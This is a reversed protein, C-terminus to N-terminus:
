QVFKLIKKKKEKKNKRDHYICTLVMIFIGSGTILFGQYFGQPRFRFAVTHEGKELEVSVFADEAALVKEKPVKKGDVTVEWGPDYPISTFFLGDKKATVTGEIYTSNHETINYGEDAMEEYYAHFVENDFTAGTISITGANIGDNKLKLSVMVKTGKKVEGVHIIQSNLKENCRIVGDNQILISEIQNGTIYLFLEENKKPNIEFVVNDELSATNTFSYYGGGSSTLDCSNTKIPDAISIKHFLEGPHEMSAEVINNQVVFPNNLRYVVDEMDKKVMFGLPLATINEYIDINGVAEKHIFNDQFISDGPRAILYKVGLLADTLPTAGKYLYENAASYFGMRGMAYVVDGNATSGFLNVGKLHHWTVEDLILSKALETRYFGTDEDLKEKMTKMEDTSSFFKSISIQGTQAYGFITNSLLEILVVTTLLYRFFRSNIHRKLFTLLLALYIILLFATVLYTYWPVTKEAMLISLLMFGACIGFSWILSWKSYSKIHLLVQYSMILIMFIYIFAFRNPIGYQDHFGHWIYNLVNLNFSLILFLLILVNKIRVSRPIKHDLIYLNLLLIPLIGCFLNVGGDNQLNTIPAFIACHATLIDIFSTYFEPKPFSMTASSTMMLGNYTPILVVAAAAAALLSYGAFIFGKKIFQKFSDFRFTLFYIVLFLCTMFTIYFNCFLSAFLAFCYLRGDDKKILYEVGLIIIPLLGISEIWMVNWSYGIMFTSLAFATSFILALCNHPRKQVSSADEANQREFRSPTGQRTSTQDWLQISQGEPKLTQGEANLSTEKPRFTSGRFLRKPYREVMPARKRRYFIPSKELYISMTLGCLSMKLIILFSVMGCLYKQKVLLILLNLPSSLYYAWLSLFNLGLGSNWSYLLSDGTKLKNQYESFFPMYQHLGDIIVLSRDGFPQVGYIMCILLLIFFPICFSMIHIRNHYAWKKVEVKWEDSSKGLSKSHKKRFIFLKSFIYNIVIVVIQILIKGLMDNMHVAQVLIAVGAIEIFMTIIRAGFFSVLEWIIDAPHSTKSQFVFFKNIVYAFLIALVIAIFNSLNLSVHFLRRLIFFVILNVLTTCGGAVLYRISEQKIIREWLSKM